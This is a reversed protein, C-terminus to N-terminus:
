KTTRATISTAPPTIQQEKGASLTVEVCWVFICIVLLAASLEDGDKLGVEFLVAVRTEVEEAELAAM